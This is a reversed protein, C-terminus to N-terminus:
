KQVELLVFPLCCFNKLQQYNEFKIINKTTFQPYLTPFIIILCRPRQCINHIRYAQVQEVFGPFFWLSLRCFAPEQPRIAFSAPIEYTTIISPNIIIFKSFIGDWHDKKEKCM